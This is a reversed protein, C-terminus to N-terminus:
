NAYKRQAMAAENFRQRPSCPLRYNFQQISSLQGRLPPRMRTNQILPRFQINEQVGGMKNCYILPHAGYCRLCCHGYTCNSKKCSGGYNFAYCKHIPQSGTNLQVGVQTNNNVYILWFELDIEGWSASPNGAIKLRFQEDYNKWGFNNPGCRKAAMRITNM